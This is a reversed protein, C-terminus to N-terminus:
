AHFAGTAADLLSGFSFAAAWAASSVTGAGSALFVIGAVSGDGGCGAVSGARVLGADVSSLNGLKPLMALDFVEGHPDSLSLSIIAIANTSPPMAYKPPPALGLGDAPELDATEESPAPGLTM